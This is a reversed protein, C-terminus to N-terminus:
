KESYHKSFRDIQDLNLTYLRFKTDDQVVVYLDNTDTICSECITIKANEPAIQVLRTLQSNFADAIIIYNGIASLAFYPWSISFARLPSYIYTSYKANEQFKVKEPQDPVGDFDNDEFEDYLPNARLVDEYVCKDLM